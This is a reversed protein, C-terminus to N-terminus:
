EPVAPGPFRMLRAKLDRLKARQGPDLSNKIRLLLELHARRAERELDLLQDSQAL